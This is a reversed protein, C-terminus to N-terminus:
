QLGKQRRWSGQLTSLSCQVQNQEEESGLHYLISYVAHLSHIKKGNLAGLVLSHQTLAWWVKIASQKLVTPHLGHFLRTFIM